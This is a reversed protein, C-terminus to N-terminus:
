KTFGWKSLPWIRFKSAGIVAKEPVQGLAPSRSDLSNPRNDGMVFVHGKKVTQPMEVMTDTRGTYYPEDLRKGDVYVKGDRIDVTQGETAIVRKVYYKRKLNPPLKIYNTMKYWVSLEKDEGEVMNEYYEQRNKYASDLIVIDGRHPEYGLKTVILREGDHLTQLMSDGDVQVIDFLFGKIVFAIVLAIVITYVWEFLERMLSFEKKETETVETNINEEM